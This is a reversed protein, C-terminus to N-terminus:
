IKRINKSTINITDSQILAKHDYALINQFWKWIGTKHKKDQQKFLAGQYNSPKNIQLM